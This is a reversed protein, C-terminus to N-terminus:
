KFVPKWRDPVDPVAQAIKLLTQPPLPENIIALNQAQAVNRVGVVVYDVHQNSLCFRVAAQTLTQTNTKLFALKRTSELLWQADDPNMYQRYEDARFVPNQTLYKDNLFGSALPVRAIFQYKQFAPENFLVDEARRDLCNYVAEIWSGFGAEIVRKAGYVSKSSVGYARIKGAKVLTEFPTPDYNAWDFNDPPSHLLLVDLYDTQLRRLSADVAEFLWAASFDQGTARNGFKTCIQLSNRAVNQLAKGLFQEAQGAGYADATDFFRVGASLAAELTDIAENEAIEGWGTPKGNVINAGGLQWTGLGIRKM